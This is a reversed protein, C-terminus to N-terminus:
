FQSQVHQEGLVKGGADFWIVEYKPQFVSYWHRYIYEDSCNKPAVTLVGCSGESTPDGLMARVVEDSDGINIRSANARLKADHQYAWIGAVVLGLAIAIFFIRTAM